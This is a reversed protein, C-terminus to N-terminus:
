KETESLPLARIATALSEAADEKCEAIFTPRGLAGLREQAAAMKAKYEDAVEAARERMEEEARHRESLLAAYLMGMCTADDAIMGMEDWLAEVVAMLVPDRDATESM